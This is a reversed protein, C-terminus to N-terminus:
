AGGAVAAPSTVSVTWAVSTQPLRAVAVRVIWTVGRASLASPGLRAIGHGASPSRTAGPRGTATEKAAASSLPSNLM